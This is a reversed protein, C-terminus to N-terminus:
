AGGAEGELDQRERAARGRNEGRKAALDFDPKEWPRVPPEDPTVGDREADGAMGSGGAAPAAREGDQQDGRGDDRDEGTSESAVMSRILEELARRQRVDLRNAEVPPAWPTGAGAPVGAARRLKDIPINLVDSFAALVEESPVGHRGGIYVSVTPQSLKHGSKQARRAIERTSWRNTNSSDLLESLATM